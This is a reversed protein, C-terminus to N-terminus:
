CGAFFATLFDFFDQSNVVADGNFDAAPAQAFFATLFDFFDQSNVADDANFDAACAPMGGLTGDPNVNQALVDGESFDGDTWVLLAEGSASGAVDLRAKGTDRSGALVTGSKWALEGDTGIRGVVVVGTLASRADFAAVYCGGDHAITQVFSTQNSNSPIVTTGFETWALEGESTIKQAALAYESQTSSNTESWALFIDQTAADYSLGASVKIFGPTETTVPLGHAQFLLNGDSDIRQVYSTRPGATEYWGYVAGGDGDPLFTPFYGNQVSGGQPGYPAGTPGYVVVATAGPTVPWQEAFSADFKQSYLYKSSLFSTTFSRTWLAIFTGDEGAQLDCLTSQHGAEAIAHAVGVLEGAASLFQLTSGGNESWGSILSGDSLVAIKPSGKFATGSSVTVGADGWAMAGDPTVKAVTIQDSGSRDDNFTLIANGDADVRLDYDQTSSVSRDAVLVGNHKWIEEGSASLRQLYVDYGGSANDFWAVYMSGDAAVRIKPQVQANSRDAVALNVAPDDSFQALAMPAQSTALLVVVALTRAHKM